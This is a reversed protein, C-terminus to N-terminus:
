RTAVLARYASSAAFSGSVDVILDTAVSSFVCVDGSAPIRVTASVAITAGAEEPNLNSANPLASGCPFVTLYGPGDADVATVNLTAASASGPVGYRGVVPVVRVEGAALRGTGAGVGDATRGGARTDTLRGPTALVNYSSNQPYVGVVDIIVQTAVSAWLCVAGGSGIAVTADNAITQGVGTINVTSVNPAVTGCPFV